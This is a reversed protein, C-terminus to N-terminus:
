RYKIPIWGKHHYIEELAEVEKSSDPIEEVAEIDEVVVVKEEEPEPTTPSTGLTTEPTTFLITRDKVGVTTTSANAPMTYQEQSAGRQPWLSAAVTGNKAAM